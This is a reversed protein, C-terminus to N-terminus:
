LTSGMATFLRASDTLRAAQAQLTDIRHGHYQQEAALTDPLATAGLQERRQMDQWRQRTADDAQQSAEIRTADEQLDALTDAVDRFADLVTQRYQSLAAQYQALAADKRALLAGGHFLPQSISGAASWILGAPSTFSSWDYGGHGYSASLSLTPFLEARAAGVQNAAAEIAADAAQVDPRQKLLASPVLLPLTGPLHLSDFPLPAPANDPSRGLLIALAHRTAALTARQAPLSAAFDAAQQAAALRDDQAAAGLQERQATLAALHDLVDRQATMQELQAQLAACQITTTVINLALARQAAQYQWAQQEVQKAAARNSLTTAGLLNFRWDVNLTASTISDQYTKPLMGPLSLTRQRVQSMGIDASPLESGGIQARLSARAADLTHRTAELSANHALGETVLADLDASHYRQWWAAPASTDTLQQRIGDAAPLADGTSSYHAPSPLAPRDDPVLLACGAMFPLTLLTLRSRPTM